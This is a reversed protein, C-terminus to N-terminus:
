DLLLELNKYAKQLIDEPPPTTTPISVMFYRSLYRSEPDNEKLCQVSYVDGEKLYVIGVLDVDDEFETTISECLLIGEFQSAPPNTIRARITALQSKLAPLTQDTFRCDESNPLVIPYFGSEIGRDVALEKVKEWKEAFYTLIKATTM